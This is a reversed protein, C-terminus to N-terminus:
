PEDRSGSNHHLVPICCQKSGSIQKYFVDKHGLSSPKQDHACGSISCQTGLEQDMEPETGVECEASADNIAEKTGMLGAKFESPDSKGQLADERHQATRLTSRKQIEHNLVSHTRYICVHGSEASSGYQPHVRSHEDCGKDFNTGLGLSTNASRADPKRQGRGPEWPVLSSVKSNMAPDACGLQHSECRQDDSRQGFSGGPLYSKVTAEQSLAVPVGPCLDCEVKEVLDCRKTDGSNLKTDAVSTSPSTFSASPNEENLNHPTPQLGDPVVSDTYDEHLKMQNEKLYEETATPLNAHTKDGSSEFAELGCTVEIKERSILDTDASAQRAIGIAAQMAEKLASSSRSRGRAVVEEIRRRADSDEFPFICDSDESVWFLPGTPLRKVPIQGKEYSKCTEDLEAPIQCPWLCRGPKEAALVVSSPRFKASWRQTTYGSDDEREPGSSFSQSTRSGTWKRKSKRNTSGTHSKFLSPIKLETSEMERYTKALNRADRKTVRNGDIMRKARDCFEHFKANWQAQWEALFRTRQETEVDTLSRGLAVMADAEARAFSPPEPYIRDFAERLVQLNWFTAEADMLSTTKRKKRKSSGQSLGEEEEEEEERDTECSVAGGESLGDGDKTGEKLPREDLMGSKWSPLVEICGLEDEVAEDMKVSRLREDGVSTIV